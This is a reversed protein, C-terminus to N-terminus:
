RWASSVFLFSGYGKAIGEHHRRRVRVIGRRVVAIYM